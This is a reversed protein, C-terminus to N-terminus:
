ATTSRDPLRARAPPATSTAPRVRSQSGTATAISTSSWDSRLSFRAVCGDLSTALLATLKSLRGATHRPPRCGRFGGPSAKPGKFSMQTRKHCASVADLPVAAARTSSSAQPAAASDVWIIRRTTLIAYGNQLWKCLALVKVNCPPVWRRGVACARRGPDCPPAAFVVPSGHLAARASPAQWWQATCAAQSPPESVFVANQRQKTVKYAAAQQCELGGVPDFELDVQNCRLRACMLGSVPEHGNGAAFHPVCVSSATPPPTM